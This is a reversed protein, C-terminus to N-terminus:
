VRDGVKECTFYATINRYKRNFRDIYLEGLQTCEEPSTTLKEAHTIQEGISLALIITLIYM